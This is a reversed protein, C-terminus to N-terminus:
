TWDRYIVRDCCEIAEEYLGSTILTIAKRNLAFIDNPNAELTKDIEKVSFMLISGKNNLADSSHPNIELAKDYCEVAEEPKGLERFMNGKSIWAMIFNPDMELAKDYCELAKKYEGVEGFEYGKKYWARKRFMKDLLGM